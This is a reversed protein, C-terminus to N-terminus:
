ADGSLIKYAKKLAEIEQKRRAAREEYSVQVEVCQPKLEQYYKNAMTLQEQTADLDKQAQERAYEAHDKELTTKFEEDHKAQQDIKGDAMFKDYQEAAQFEASTADAEVRAFDSEIVEMMGLVGGSTGQMGKYSEMEPVQLNKQIFAQKEYFEKLVVVAQKIAVQAQKAEKVALENEQKEASRQVTAESMAKTLEAQEAALTEIKQAMKQINVTLDEIESDLRAVDSEKVDRLQKNSKLEDDCWAKHDAEQAAEEKMKELLAEIMDIVKAFPNENASAILTMLHTSQLHQAERQLLALARKRAARDTKVHEQLFM